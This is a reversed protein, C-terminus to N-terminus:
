RASPVDEFSDAFVDDVQLVIHDFLVRGPQNIGSNAVLRIKGAVVDSSLLVSDTSYTLSVWTGAGFQSAVYPSAGGPGVTCSSDTYTDLLAIGITGSTIRMRAGFTYRVSADIPFCDSRAQVENNAPSVVVYSPSSPAGDSTLLTGGNWGTTGLDFDPNPVVSAALVGGACWLFCGAITLRASNPIHM